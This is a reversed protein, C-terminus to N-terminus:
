HKGGQKASRLGLRIGRICAKLAANEQQLRLNQAQLLRNDRLVTEKAWMPLFRETLWFKM